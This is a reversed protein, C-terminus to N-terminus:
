AQPPQCAGCHGPPDAAAAAPVPERKVAAKLGIITKQPCKEVCVGCENCKEFDIVALNDVVTIAGEPCNKECIKCATCGIACAERVQRGRDRSRCAVLVHKQEPVLQIVKRPCAKVCKGCGTCKGRDVEAVGQANIHIADFPCVRVCSGLGLCGYPCLKDGGFLLGAAQCNDVGAYQYKSKAQDRGARCAVLAVKDAQLDVAVGMLEALKAATASGGAVCGTVEAKQGILAEALGQCGPFGCAGCNSGPLAATVAEQKPDVHVAFRRYFMALLAAFALGLLGLALTAILVNM